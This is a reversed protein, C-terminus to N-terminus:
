WASGGAYFSNREPYDDLDEGPFPSKDEEEPDMYNLIYKIVNLAQSMGDVQDDFKGFPFARCEELFEDKFSADRPIFVDGATILVSAAQMRAIKGGLPTVATIGPLKRQLMEIIATGNAKDEILKQVAEPYKITMREIETVTTAFDMRRRVQDVLYARNKYVGWVQGVVYDSTKTDKFSCDWSQILQEFKPISATNYYNFKETKILSGELPTPRQQYLSSWERADIDEKIEELWDAGFGLQPCLPDGIKRGLADEEAEAPMSIVHWPNRVPKGTRKEIKAQRDLLRGALDDEHWRTIIIIIRGDGHLRTRLTSTWEKWTKERQLESDASSRNKVIDDVMLLDAGKGTIGGAEGKAEIGGRKGEIGFSSVSAKERSVQIGFIEEGYRDIKEKNRMGFEKALTDAYSVIIVRRNPDKGIFWSPFTETSTMSKGHRPPMFIMLRKIDGREVAELKDCVVQLHPYPKWAMEHTYQCYKDFHKICERKRREQLM